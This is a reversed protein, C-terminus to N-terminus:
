TNSSTRPRLSVGVLYKQRHHCKQRGYPNICNPIKASTFRELCAAIGSVRPTSPCPLWQRHYRQHNLWGLQRNPASYLICRTWFISLCYKACLKLLNLRMVAIKPLLGRSFLHLVLSGTSIKGVDYTAWRWMKAAPPPTRV